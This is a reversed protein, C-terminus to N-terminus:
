LSVFKSFSSETDKEYKKQEDLEKREIASKRKGGSAQNEDLDNLTAKMTLVGLPKELDVDEMLYFNREKDFPQAFYNLIVKLYRAKVNKMVLFEQNLVDHYEKNIIAAWDFEEVMAWSEGINSKGIMRTIDAKSSGVSSDITRAAERNLQAATIIPINLETAIVKMETIINSMSIRLENNTQVPRMTKVYDHLIAIIDYGKDRYKYYLERFINTNASNAPVFLMIFNINSSTEDLGSDKFMENVEKMEFNCIEEGTVCSFVREISEDVSNEQTIYLITPILSNNSEYTNNVKISRLLNILLGSKFGGTIGFFGYVRKKKFGGGLMENLYHYGTKLMAEPKRKEEIVNSIQRNSTSKDFLNFEQQQTNSM